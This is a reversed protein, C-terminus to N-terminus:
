LCAELVKGGRRARASADPFGGCGSGRERAESLFDPGADHLVATQIRLADWRFGRVRLAVEHSYPLDYEACWGKYTGLNLLVLFLQKAMKRTAKPELVQVDMLWQERNDCYDSICAAKIGLIRARELVLMVHCNEADVDFYHAACAAARAQVTLYFASPGTAVLRGRGLPGYRFSVHLICREAVAALGLVKDIADPRRDKGSRLWRRLRPVDIMEWCAYARGAPLPAGGLPAPRAETLGALLPAPSYSPLLDPKPECGADRVEGVSALRSFHRGRLLVDVRPLGRRVAEDNLLVHRSGGGEVLVAAHFGAQLAIAQIEVTSLYYLPNRLAQEYAAWVEDSRVVHALWSAREAPLDRLQKLADRCRQIWAPPSAISALLGELLANNRLLVERKGVPTTDASFRGEDWAALFGEKKAPDGPHPDARWDAVVAIGVGPLAWLDECHAHLIALANDEETLGRNWEGRLDPWSALADCVLKAEAFRDSRRDLAVASVMESLEHHVAELVGATRAARMLTVCLERASGCFLARRGPAVSGFVAHVACAGDGTTLIVWFDGARGDFLVGLKLLSGTSEVRPVAVGPVL